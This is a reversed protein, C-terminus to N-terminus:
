YDDWPMNHWGTYEAIANDPISCLEGRSSERLNRMGAEDLLEGILDFVKEYEESKEPGSYPEEEFTM